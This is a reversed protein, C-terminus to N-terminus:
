VKCEVSWVKCEACVSWLKCGVTPVNCKASPVKFSSVKCEVSQM